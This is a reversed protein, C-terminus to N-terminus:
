NRSHCRNCRVCRNLESGVVKEEFSVITVHLNILCRAINYKDSSHETADDCLRTDIREIECLFTKLNLLELAAACGKSLVDCSRAHKIAQSLRQLSFFEGSKVLAPCRSYYFGSRHRSKVEKEVFFNCCLEIFKLKGVPKPMIINMREDSHLSIKILSYILHMRWLLSSDRIFNWKESLNSEPYFHIWIQRIATAPISQIQTNTDTRAEFHFTEGNGSNALEFVELMKSLSLSFAVTILIIDIRIQWQIPQAQSFNEQTKKRKLVRRPTRLHISFTERAKPNNM